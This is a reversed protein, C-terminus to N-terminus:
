EELCVGCSFNVTFDAWRRGTFLVPFQGIVKYRGKVGGKVEEYLCIADFLVVELASYIGTHSTASLM